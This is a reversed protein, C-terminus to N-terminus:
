AARPPEDDDDNNEHPELWAVIEPESLLLEIGTEEPETVGRGGVDHIRFLRGGNDVTRPNRRSRNCVTGLSGDAESVVYSRIWRIDASMEDGGVQRSRAAAPEPEEPTSWGAPRRIVFRNV